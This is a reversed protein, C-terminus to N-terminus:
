KANEGEQKVVSELEGSELRDRWRRVSQKRVTPNAAPNPMLQKGTIEWLDHIALVRYDLSDEELWDVLKALAGTKLQEPTTGIQEANYGCLMEYLDAAASRGRQDVLAKFVLEASEPSQAMAARLTEIHTRWTPWKQESDRLADIFPAILGVHISSRTVLSKVERRDRGKFLELLQIDVPRDSVLTNEIVPAGYRQESLHIVPEQDIWEPPASDAIVEAAAGETLTWRSAKDAVVEGSADKWTVGDDPVFMRVVMPAPMTRPDNGAVYPREEEV